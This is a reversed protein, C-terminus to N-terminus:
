LSVRVLLGLVNVGAAVQLTHAYYWEPCGTSNQSQVDVQYDMMNPLQLSFTGEASVPATFNEAVSATFRVSVPHSTMAQWPITGTVAPVSDPTPPNLKDSQATNSWASLNLSVAGATMEGRQWAYYGEWEM